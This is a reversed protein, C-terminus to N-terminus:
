QAIGWPAVMPAAMMPQQPLMPLPNPNMSVHTEVVELHSFNRDDKWVHIVTQNAVCAKLDISPDFRSWARVTNTEKDLYTPWSWMSGDAFYATWSNPRVMQRGTEPDIVPNGNRDKVEYFGPRPEIGLLVGTVEPKYRGVEGSGVLSDLNIFNYTKGTTTNISM